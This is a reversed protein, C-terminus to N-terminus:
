WQRRDIIGRFQMFGISILSVRAGTVSEIEDIFRITGPTLQEFRWAEANKGDIYDAFTLAIDTPANFLAARRLLDWEFEGVRRLTGTKSTKEKEELGSLGCREEIEPWTLERTFDGSPGGVRIPYSRVVLVVRRLRAPAIGAEALCGAVNTDRSTVYPYPGHYLSLGSGQTGELCIRQRASYAAELIEAAPRVYPHLDPVQEALVVDDERLIRRATAVGAGSATSAIRKRLGAEDDQDKPRIVMARPDISLREASVDCGAIEDLLDPPFIVAGPGILLQASCNQTGSPLAFHTFVEGTALFVKHAANPGGVRVLLDYEPAIHFAINGKGESGYLGGIVVDVSPAHERDLLGLQAAARVLVDEEACLDSDVRIDAMDGLSDVQSETPDRMVEAYDIDEVVAGSGRREEYRKACTEPSATVHVHRVGRGFARRLADVQAGIRAADVVILEETAEFITQSFGDAVWGPDRNDLETGILQLTKRSPVVGEPLRPELLSRTSLRLGGFRDVLGRALQSKGGAVPGSVVVILKRSM